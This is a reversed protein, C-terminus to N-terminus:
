SLTIVDFKFLVHCQIDIQIEIDFCVMEGSVNMGCVYKKLFDTTLNCDKSMQRWKQCKTCQAWYPLLSEAMFTKINPDTTGYKSWKRKWVAFVEYGDKHSFINLTLFQIMCMKPSFSVEFNFGLMGILGVEEPSLGRRRPDIEKKSFSGTQTQSDFYYARLPVLSTM